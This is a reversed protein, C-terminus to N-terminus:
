CIKHLAANIRRYLTKRDMNLDDAVKQHMEKKVYIRVAANKELSNPILMLKEDVYLIRDIYSQREDILRDKDNMLELIRSDKRYPNGANEYIVDKIAPSSVGQLKVAIEELQENCEQVKKKYFEYSKLERKLQEVKDKETLVDGRGKRTHKERCEGAM